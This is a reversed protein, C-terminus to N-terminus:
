QQGRPCTTTRRADTLRISHNILEGTSRVRTRYLLSFNVAESPSVDDRQLEQEDDSSGDTATSVDATESLVAQDVEQLNSEAPIEAPPM